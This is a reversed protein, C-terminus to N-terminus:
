DQKATLIRQTPDRPDLEKPEDGLKVVTGSMQNSKLMALHKEADARMMMAQKPDRRSMLKAGAMMVLLVSDLMCIDTDLVLPTLKRKGTFRITMTSAPTPWIEFQDETHPEWRQPPDAQAGADSNYSTYLEPTIGRVLPLWVNGWRVYVRRVNDYSIDVPYDYYRQGAATSKDFFGNALTGILHPWDFEAYLREQEMRISHAVNARFNQGLAPNSSLATELQVAEILQSLPVGLAM